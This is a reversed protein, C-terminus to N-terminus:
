RKCGARGPLVAPSRNAQKVTAWCSKERVTRHSHNSAHSCQGMFQGVDRVLDDEKDAQTGYGVAVAGADYCGGRSLRGKQTVEFEVGLGICCSEQPGDVAEEGSTAQKAAYRGQVYRVLPTPLFGDQKGCDAGNDATTQCGTAYVDGHEHHGAQDGSEGDSRQDTENWEILALDRRRPDATKKHAHVSCTDGSAINSGAPDAKGEVKDM